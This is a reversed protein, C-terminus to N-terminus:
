VCVGFKILGIVFAPINNDNYFCDQETDIFNVIEDAPIYKNFARYMFQGQRVNYVPSWKKCFEYVEGVPIPLQFNETLEEINLQMKQYNSMIDGIASPVGDGNRMAARRIKEYDSM